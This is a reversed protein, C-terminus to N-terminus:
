ENYFNSRLRYTAYYKMNMNPIKIILKIEDNELIYKSEINDLLKYESIDKPKNLVLINDNDKKSISYLKFNNKSNIKFYKILSKKIYNNLSANIDTFSKWNKSLEKINNQFLNYFAITLNISITNNDIHIEQENWKEIDFEINRLNICRSGFFSKDDIGLIYGNINNFNDKTTYNRYFDKDWNSSVLSRDELSFMNTTNALNIQSQSNDFIKHGYYNKIRNVNSVSTNSMILNIKLDKILEDDENIDFDIIDIFNPNYFDTIYKVNQNYVATISLPEYNKNTEIITNNNTKLYIIMDNNKISNVYRTILNEYSSSYENNYQYTPNILFTKATDIKKSKLKFSSKKFNNDKEINTMMESDVSTKVYNNENNKLNLNNLKCAYLDSNAFYTNDNYMDNIQYISDYQINSNNDSDLPIYIDKSDTYAKNLNLHINSEHWNYPLINDLKNQKDVYYLNDKKNLSNNYFNHNVILIINELTNIFIENKANDEFDDVIYIEYKNYNSLQIEKIFTNTTLTMSFKIGYLIFDLTNLYQNYYGICYEVRKDSTLFLTLIDSMNSNLIYDRFTNKQGNIEVIDNLTNKNYVESNFAKKNIQKIYGKSINKFQNELDNISLISNHDYYIGTGKWNSVVPNILPYSLNSTKDNNDYYYRDNLIPINKIYNIDEIDSKLIEIEINDNNLSKAIFLNDQLPIEQILGTQTQNSVNNDAIYLKNNVFMFTDGVNIPINKFTGKILKYAINSKLSYKTNEKDLYVNSDPEISLINSIHITESQNYNLWSDFDKIPLIGMIAIKMKESEYLDVFRNNSIEIKFKSGIIVKNLDKPSQLAKINKGALNKVLSVHRNNNIKKLNSINSKIDIIVQKKKDREIILKSIENTFYTASKIKNDLEQVEKKLKDLINQYKSINKNEILYSDSKIQITDLDFDLIRNYGNIGNNVITNSIIKDINTNDLEYYYNDKFEYMKVISSKRWGLLEFNIPAFIKSNDIYDNSRNDLTTLYIELEPNNYYEITPDKEKLNEKPVDYYFDKFNAENLNGFDLKHNEITVSDNNLIDNTIHQFYADNYNTIISISDESLSLTQIDINYKFFENFAKGLREVQVSLPALKTSDIVDQTYFSLRFIYPYVKGVAQQYNSSNDDLSSSGGLKKPPQYIDKNEYQYKIAEMINFENFTQGTKAEYYHNEEEKNNDSRERYYLLNNGDNESNNVSLFASVTNDSYQLLPDNSAIVEFIIPVSINNSVFNSFCIRFYEGYEIQKKFKLSIYNKYNFNLQKVSCIGYNSYPKNMVFNRSFEDIDNSKKIRTINKSSIAAFIRDDYNKNGLIKNNKLISDDVINHNEDYKNIVQNGSKDLSKEILDYTIFDNEKVYLGFYRCMQYNESTFDDFMFELNMINPCLLRNRQFGDIIFQDLKEQSRKKITENGFYSIEDKKVILGSDLSIGYWSNQGNNYDKKTELEKFQLVVSGPYEAFKNYHNRLYKGVISNERLDYSKILEGNKLFEKFIKTDDINKFNYSDINYTTPIKFILFFDPLERNIWLPALIKFNENYLEDDNTQAGYEYTTDYQDEYNTFPEHASLDKDPIKYMDDSPLLHFCNRVDTSYNSNSSVSYHRYAYKNLNSSVKFTDLYIKNDSTIVVKINGSLKPNTRILQYSASSNSLVVGSQNFYNTNNQLEKDSEIILGIYENDNDGIKFKINHSALKNRLICFYQNEVDNKDSSIIYRLNYVERDITEYKKKIEISKGNISIDSCVKNENSGDISLIEIYPNTLKKNFIKNINIFAEQHNPDLVVILNFKEM